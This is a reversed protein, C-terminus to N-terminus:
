NSLDANNNPSGYKYHIVLLVLGLVFCISGVTMYAIGLFPNKGGMWTITSLVMRKRGDFSIVPYDPNM